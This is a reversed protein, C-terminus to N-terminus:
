LRAASRCENCICRVLLMGPRQSTTRAPSASDVLLWFGLGYALGTEKQLSAPSSWFSRSTTDGGELRSSLSPRDRGVGFAACAEGSGGQDERQMASCQKSSCAVRTYANERENQCVCARGGACIASWSPKRSDRNVACRIPSCRRGKTEDKSIRETEPLSHM